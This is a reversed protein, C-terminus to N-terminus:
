PGRTSIAQVAALARGPDPDGALAVLEAILTARRPDDATLAGLLVVRLEIAAPHTRSAVWMRALTGATPLMRYALLAADPDTPGAEPRTDFRERRLFLADAQATRGLSRSAAIAVDAARPMLDAGALELASRAATMADVHQGVQELATSVGIWVVAPDGWAAAAQTAFVLAAPGDGTRAVAEALGRVFRPEPSLDVAAQWQARARAPDGLADFLAGLAAHGAAADASAAVVDRGLRDGIVGERAFGRAVDLLAAEDPAGPFRAHAYHAAAVLPADAVGALDVKAPATELDPPPMPTDTSLETAWWRHADAYIGALDRDDGGHAHWQELQEYAERRAGIAWLWVGFRGHQDPTADPKAGLWAPEQASMPVLLARGQARVGADIHRLLASAQATRAAVDDHPDIVAGLSRARDLDARAAPSDRLLRAKARAVLLRAMRARDEPEWRIGLPGGLNVVIELQELAEGPRGQQDALAALALHAHVDRPHALVHRVLDFRTTPEPSSHACGALIVAFLLGRV